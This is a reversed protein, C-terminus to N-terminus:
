VPRPTRRRDNAKPAVQWFGKTIEQWLARMSDDKAREKELDLLVIARHTGLIDAVQMALEQSMHDRGTRLKSVYGRTLGLRAALAYDSPLKLHEKLKDLYQPTNM